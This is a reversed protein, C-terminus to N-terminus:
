RRGKPTGAAPAWRRAAPGRRDISRPRRTACSGSRFRPRRRMSARGATAHLGCSAQPPRGLEREDAIALGRARLAVPFDQEVMAIFETGRHRGVAKRLGTQMGRDGLADLQEGRRRTQHQLRQQRAIRGAFEHLHEARLVEACLRADSLPTQAERSPARANSSACVRAPPASMSPCCRASAVIRWANSSATAASPAPAPAARSRSEPGPTKETEDRSVMRLSTVRRDAM